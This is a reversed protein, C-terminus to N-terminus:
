PDAPGTRKPAFAKARRQAKALQDSTLKGKLDTLNIDSTTPDGQGGALLGWKYAEV